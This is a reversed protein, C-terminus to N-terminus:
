AAGEPIFLAYELGDLVEAFKPDACLAPHRDALDILVDQAIEITDFLAAAYTPADGVEFADRRPACVNQRRSRTTFDIVDAM